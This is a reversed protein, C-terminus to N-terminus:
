PEGRGDGFLRASIETELLQWANRLRSPLTNDLIQRGGLSAVLGGRVDGSAKISTRALLAPHHSGLHARLPEADGEAVRLEVPGEGLEPALEEVLRSLLDPDNVTALRAEAERQLEALRLRMEALIAREQELRARSVARASEENLRRREQALAAERRAALEAATAQLLRDREQSAEARLERIQRGVEEELAQLLEQYGV